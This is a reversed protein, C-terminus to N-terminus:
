REGVKMYNETLISVMLWLIIPDEELSLSFKEM